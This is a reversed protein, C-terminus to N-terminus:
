TSWSGACISGEGRRRRVALQDLGGGAALAQVVIRDSSAVQADFLARLLRPSDRAASTFEWDPDADWDVSAWPEAPERGLFRQHIWMHEVLALHKLLGGLTLASSPLKFALQDASLRETKRRLVDRQFDLFGVLTEVEHGAQPPDILETTEELM